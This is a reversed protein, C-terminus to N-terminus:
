DWIYLRDCIESWGVIDDRFEKNREDSLPKSFSCEISCLRVIVNQRPKTITPPKRTYQYALTSIAVNPFEDEIDEAARNVFRLMLGAPSGEEEEIAACETCQCNKRWDNQSVSAITAAPNSRLQAKLNKLLEQYMQENTLCLQTRNATRKGEIESFWEPHDKFYKDPPILRNFTHVFGEYIHKGGRKADLAPRQGNAKNRVAWDADFADFWYPERYELGPSYRVYQGRVVVTPKDPITSVKSSWWRCGLMDELFTYVAYLTGRPHVGALILDNGINRIVIGDAGLDDTSFDAQALRAAGPGVLLRSKGEAPPPEIEFEAGTIQQLFDALEDAAHRESESADAAVVIVAKATGNQSITITNGKAAQGCGAILLLTICLLGITSKRLM